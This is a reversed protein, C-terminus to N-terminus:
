LIICQRTKVEVYHQKELDESEKPKIKIITHNNGQVNQSEINDDYTPLM